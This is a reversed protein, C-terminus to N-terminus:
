DLIYPDSTCFVHHPKPNSDLAPSFHAQQCLSTLHDPFSGCLICFCVAWGGGGGGGWGQIKFYCTRSQLFSLSSPISQSTCFVHVWLTSSCALGSHRIFTSQTKVKEPGCDEQLCWPGELETAECITPFAEVPGM